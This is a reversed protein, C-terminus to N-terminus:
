DSGNLIRSATLLLSDLTTFVLVERGHKNRIHQITTQEAKVEREQFRVLHEALIHKPTKEWHICIMNAESGQEALIKKFAPVLNSWRRGAIWLHLIPRGSLGSPPTNDSTYAVRDSTIGYGALSKKIQSFLDQDFTAMHIQVVHEPM